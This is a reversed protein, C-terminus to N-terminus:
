GSLRRRYDDMDAVNPSTEGAAGGAPRELELRARRRDAETVLLGSMASNLATLMFASPKAVFADIALVVLEAAAWDSPQYFQAQGSRRLADWFRKAQACHRGTLPEGHLTDAVAVKEPQSEKNQRRRQTSRKPAPGRAGM